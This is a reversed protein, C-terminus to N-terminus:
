GAIICPQGAVLMDDILYELRYDGSALEETTIAEFVTPEATKGGANKRDRSCLDNVVREADAHDHPPDCKGCWEYALKLIDLPGDGNAIHSGVLTFLEAHRNGKSAGSSSQFDDGGGMTFPSSKAKGNSGNRAYSLLWDPAPPLDYEFPDQLWRYPNGSAHNSPEVLVYGGEGRVDVSKGQLKAANSIGDSPYAFLLHRGGGGTESLPSDPLDPHESEIQNFDRIGEIGDLDLVWCGSEEGTRLAVNAQPNVRWWQKIKEVDTTASYLGNGPIPHKAPSTCDASGCSCKENRIFHCPFVLMGAEAYQLAAEMNNKKTQGNVM